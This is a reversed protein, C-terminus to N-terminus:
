NLSVLHRGTPSAKIATVGVPAGEFVLNGGLEASGPGLDVLWDASCIVDTNHEVLIVTAGLSVLHRLRDLLRVVDDFHLGTTPEDMLLVTGAAMRKTLFPVMKLRQAEGGSLSASPQGMKLYGLGLEQAPLLRRVIMKHSAFIELAEDITLDLAQAINIGNFTVALVPPQYRKGECVPCRVRADSLFRMSLAVEGRGKCEECRGGEANLSFSRATLGAIQAEPLQAYLDRLEGFVDLYSAPMSVSSKAVPRRDILYLQEVDDVGSIASCGFPKKRRGRGSGAIQAELNRMLTGLVLSSKGAGSVGSVVNLASKLFRVRKIKLNHLDCDALEMFPTALQGRLQGPTVRAGMASVKKSAHSLHWATRSDKAFRAADGPAFQALLRGGSAGGGPGLDIILDARRMLADDHDVILVTNGEDRLRELGQWLLDLEEPHLGQSPEDLVYLVGRLSESLIGALKLRQSEGGSLSRVRRAMHLYGIGIAVIRDIIASAEQEVRLFAPNQGLPGSKLKSLIVPLDRIASRMLDHITWSGLKMAAWTADVGTGHCAACTITSNAFTLEDLDDDDIGGGASALTADLADGSTLRGGSETVNGFGACSACRGLSNASFYRADLKPWSYGCEPCGGQTSFPGGNGLDLAGDAGVAFFEGFGKGEAIAVEISRAIRDRSTAKVKVQDVLLKITHKEERALEPVPSLSLMEGDIYARLYGKEAFATLQARFIGKKATAVPVCIAVTKGDWGEIIRDVVGQVGQSSTPLGHKPCNQTAFRAMMVAFLESLDTLTGVTARRSPQTENQALAIAPSLGGVKRVAPRSGLDLFQRSYHSLTYFFRRQSEALVTDFALSSKGSGSVGTVVTIKGRPIKLSLDKLNHECAGEITIFSNTSLKDSM